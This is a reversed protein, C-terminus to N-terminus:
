FEGMVTLRLKQVSLHNFLMCVILAQKGRAINKRWLTSVRMKKDTKFWLHNEHYSYSSREWWRRCWPSNLFGRRENRAWRRREVTEEKKRKRKTTMPRKKRRRPPLLPPLRPWSLRPGPPRSRLSRPESETPRWWTGCKPWTCPRPSRVARLNAGLVTCATLSSTGTSSCNPQFRNTKRQSRPFSFSTQTPTRQALRLCSITWTRMTTSTPLTSKPSFPVTPRCPSLTPQPLEAKTTIPTWIFQM